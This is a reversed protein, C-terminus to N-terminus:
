DAGVRRRVAVEEDGVFMLSAADSEDVDSRAWLANAAIRYDGARRDVGTGASISRGAVGRRASFSQLEDEVFAAVEGRVGWLGRVTEFDAGIM